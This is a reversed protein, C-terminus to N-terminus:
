ETDEELDEHIDCKTFIEEIKNVKEEDSLENDIGMIERIIDQQNIRRIAVPYVEQNEEQSKFFDYDHFALVVNEVIRTKREELFTRGSIRIEQTM